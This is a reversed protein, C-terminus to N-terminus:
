VIIVLLDNCRAALIAQAIKGNNSNTSDEREGSKM